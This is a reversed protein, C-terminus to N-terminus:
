CASDGSDMTQLYGRTRSSWFLYSFFLGPVYFNILWRSLWRIPYHILPSLALHLAFRRPSFLSAAMADLRLVARLEPHKRLLIPISQSGYTQMLKCLPELDRLDHHKSLAKAAYYMPIGALHLRYGLELDEGGYATLDEDFFGVRLLSSRRVSSNGTVFCKFHMAKGEDAAHVGRGEIYRTLSTTPIESAFRINGIFVAENHSQHQEAHARLFDPGVTMDSDLFIIIDGTAVRLAANRARARGQNQTNRILHLPFPALGAHLREADLHASADDVVIIETAERPYDQRSLSKLAAELREPENYTPMVLSISLLTTM